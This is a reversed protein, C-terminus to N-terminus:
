AQGGGEQRRGREGASEGGGGGRDVIGRSEEAQAEEDPHRNLLFKKPKNNLQGMLNPSCLMRNLTNKIHFVNEM